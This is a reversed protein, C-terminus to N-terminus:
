PFLLRLCQIFDHSIPATVSIEKKTYPHVFSIRHAHLMQRKAERHLINEIEKRAYETEGIVPHGLYSTNKGKKLLTIHTVATQGGVPSNITFAPECIKGTVIVRYIKQIDHKKFVKKMEEFANENKAFILAGSTDKDLRHVAQIRDRNFQTRLDREISNQGNTVIGPPKSVIVYCDDNFLIDYTKKEPQRTKGSLVEISDGPKLQYSAIWVRKRNVFVLRDDLLQKAKKNSLSLKNAIFHLLTLESDRHTVIFKHM